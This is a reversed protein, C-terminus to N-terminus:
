HPWNLAALEARVPAPVDPGDVQGANWVALAETLHARATAQSGGAALACHAAEVRALGHELALCMPGCAAELAALAAHHAADLQGSRRLTLAQARLTRVAVTARPPPGPAILEASATTASLWDSATAKALACISLRTLRAVPAEGFDAVLAAGNAVHVLAADGDGQLARALALWNSTPVAEANRGGTLRGHMAEAETLLTVGESLHGGAILARGLMVMVTRVRQTEVVDLARLDALVQRLVAVADRPQGALAVADAYGREVDVLAPHPRQAGFAARASALAPEIARVAEVPRGFHAFTNSLASRTSLALESAEGFAQTALAVAEHLAAMAEAERGRKTLAFAHSRLAEVRKQPHTPSTTRLDHLLAPLLGLAVDLEGMMNAAEALRWRSELTFPHTPGFARTCREVAKPLWEFGARLDGLANFSSGVLASLEAAVEPQGALDADIRQAASRLLDAATVVGGSGARPVAQAFITAIFAKVQQARALATRAREAERRARNRQWLAAVAGGALALLVLVQAYAGGLLAVGVAGAIAVETKHRALWCSARYGFAPARAQVPQGALHRALDDALADVSAYRQAPARALAKALM